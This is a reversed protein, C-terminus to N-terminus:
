LIRLFEERHRHLKEIQERQKQSDVNSRELFGQKIHVQPLANQDLPEPEGSAACCNYFGDGRPILRTSDRFRVLMLTGLLVENSNSDSIWVNGGITIRMRRQDPVCKIIPVLPALTKGWGDESLIPTPLALLNDATWEFNGGRSYIPEDSHPDNHVFFADGFIALDLENGTPSLDGQTMVLRMPIDRKGILTQTIQSSARHFTPLLPLFEYVVEKFAVTEAHELNYLRNWIMKDIRAIENRLFADWNGGRNVVCPAEHFELHANPAIFNQHQHQNQPPAIIEIKHIEIEHPPNSEVKPIAGGLIMDHLKRFEPNALARLIREEQMKLLQESSNEPFIESYNESSPALNEGEADFAVDSTIEAAAVSLFFVPSFFIAAVSAALLVRNTKRM